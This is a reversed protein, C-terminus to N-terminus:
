GMKPSTIEKKVSSFHSSTALFKSKVIPASKPFLTLFTSRTIYPKISNGKLAKVFSSSKQTNVGFQKKLFSIMEFDYIIDNNLNHQKLLNTM